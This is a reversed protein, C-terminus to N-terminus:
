FTCISRIKYFIQKRFFHMTFGIFEDAEKTDLIFYKQNSYYINHM